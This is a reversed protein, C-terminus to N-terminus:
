EISIKKTKRPKKNAMKEARKTERAAKKEGREKEKLVTKQLKEDAKIKKANEKAMQKSQDEKNQEDMIGKLAILEDNILKSYKTFLEQLMENQINERLKGEKRLTKKLKKEAKKTQRDITQEEKL